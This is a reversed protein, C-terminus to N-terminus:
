SSGYPYVQFLYQSHGFGDRGGKKEEGEKGEGEREKGLAQPDLPCLGPIIKQNSFARIYTLACKLCLIFM